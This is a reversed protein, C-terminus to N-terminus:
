HGSTTASRKSRKKLHLGLVATSLLAFASYIFFLLALDHSTQLHMLSIIWIGFLCILSAAAYLLANVALKHRHFHHLIGSFVYPPTFGYGISLVFIEILVFMLSLDFLSFLVLMVLSVVFTAIYGILLPTTEMKFKWHKTAIMKGIFHGAAPVVALLGIHAISFTNGAHHNLFFIMIYYSAISVSGCGFAFTLLLFIKNKLIHGYTLFVKSISRTDKDLAPQRHRLKLGLILLLFGLGMTVYFISHWGFSVALWGGIVIVVTPIWASITGTIAIGRQMIPRKNKQHAVDVVNGIHANSTSLLVAVGMGEVFRGLMVVSVTDTFAILSSGVILLIASVILYYYMGIYHSIFVSLLQIVLIGAIFSVMTLQLDAQTSQLAIVMLPMASLYTFEAFRRVTRM